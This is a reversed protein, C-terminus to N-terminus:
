AFDENKGLKNLQRKLAGKLQYLQKLELPRNQMTRYGHGARDTLALNDITVNDKDGDVFYVVSGKPIEGHHERWVMFHKFDWVNPEAIKVKWYGDTTKVETGVEVHNKPTHGSKFATQLAREQAEASMYEDWKRGKNMPTHGQKFQGAKSCERMFEPDKRLGLTFARGIVSRDTRGIMKGIDAARTRAWLERIIADEEASYHAGKKKPKEM